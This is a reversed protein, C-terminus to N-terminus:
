AAMLYIAGFFEPLYDIYNYDRVDRLMIELNQNSMSYNLRGYSCLAVYPM